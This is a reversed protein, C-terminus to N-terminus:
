VWGRDTFDVLYLPNGIRESGEGRWGPQGPPRAREPALANSQRHEVAGACSSRRSRRLAPPAAAGVRVHPRSFPVPVPAHLPGLSASASSPGGVGGGGRLMAISLGPAAGVRGVAAGLLPQKSSAYDCVSRADGARERAPRAATGAASESSSPPSGDYRGTAGRQRPPSSEARPAGHEAGAYKM